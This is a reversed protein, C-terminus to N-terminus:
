MVLPVMDVISGVSSSGRASLSNEADCLSHIARRIACRWTLPLRWPLALRGLCCVWPLILSYITAYVRVCLPIRMAVLKRVPVPWAWLRLRMHIVLFITGMIPRALEYSSIIKYTRYSTQSIFFVFYFPPPFLVM